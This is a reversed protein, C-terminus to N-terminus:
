PRTKVSAIVSMGSRLRDAHPQGLDLVIKVPIRQAIKTYNGTANDPPLLSFQSGVAPSLKAVRGTWVVNPIGDVAVESPQGVCVHTVQNEMFNAVVWVDGGVLSIVQTGVSVLQGARVRREGVVGDTPAVIRTYDLDVRAVDLAADRARVDAILQAEQADLVSMERRQADLEAQRSVLTARFREHDAVAAEVVQRTTAGEKEIAEERIRELRTRQLDANVANINAEAQAIRSSQLEKQRRLTELAATAAQAAAAALEVQASFDDDRLQVLLDGAHVRQYDDVLVKSVIGASKTSLPTIDARLQADDTTQIARDGVFANWRASALVIGGAFTIIVAPFAAAQLRPLIRSVASPTTDNSTAGTM